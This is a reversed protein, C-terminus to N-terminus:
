LIKKNKYRGRVGPKGGSIFLMEKERCNKITTQNTCPYFYKRELFAMQLAFSRKIIEAYIVFFTL